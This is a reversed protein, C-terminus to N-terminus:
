EQQVLLWGESQLSESLRTSTVAIGNDNAHDRVMRQINASILPVASGEFVQTGLESRRQETEMRQQQWREATEVLRREREIDLRINDINAARDAYIASVMPLAQTALFVVGVALALFLINRERKTM